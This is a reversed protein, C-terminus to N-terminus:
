FDSCFTNHSERGEWLVGGFLPTINGKLTSCLSSKLGFACKTIVNLGCPGGVRHLNVFYIPCICMSLPFGSAIIDSACKVTQSMCLLTVLNMTQM